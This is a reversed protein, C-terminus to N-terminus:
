AAARARRRERVAIYERVLARRCAALCEEETGSFVVPSKKGARVDADSVRDADRVRCFWEQDPMYVLEILFRTNSGYYASSAADWKRLDAFRKPSSRWFLQVKRM